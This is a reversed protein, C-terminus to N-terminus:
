VDAHDHQEAYEVLQMLNRITWEGGDKGSRDILFSTFGQERAGDAEPKCDDGYRSEGATM